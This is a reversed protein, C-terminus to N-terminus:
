DHTVGFEPVCYTDTYLYDSAKEDPMARQEVADMARAAKTCAENTLGRARTVRSTEHHTETVILLTYGSPKLPHNVEAAHTIGYLALGVLVICTLIIRVAYARMSM